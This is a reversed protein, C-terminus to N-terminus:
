KVEKERKDFLIGNQKSFFAPRDRAAPARSFEPHDIIILRDPSDPFTARVAL